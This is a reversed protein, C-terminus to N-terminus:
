APFAGDIIARYRLDTVVKHWLGGVMSGVRRDKGWGPLALLKDVARCKAADEPTLHYHGKRELLLKVLLPFVFAAMVLHELPAWGLGRRNKPHAYSNRLDYLEEIWKRHVFVCTSHIAAGKSASRCRWRGFLPKGVQFPARAVPKPSGAPSSGRGASNSRNSFLAWCSRACNNSRRRPRVGASAVARRRRAAVPMELLHGAGLCSPWPGFPLYASM